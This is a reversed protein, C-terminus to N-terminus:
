FTILFRLCLKAVDVNCSIVPWCHCVDSPHESCDGSSAISFLGAWHPDPCVPVAGPWDWGKGRRFHHWTFGRQQLEFWSLLIGHDAPALVAAPPHQETCLPHGTRIGAWCWLHRVMAARPPKLRKTLMALLVPPFTADLYQSQAILFPLDLGFETMEGNRNWRGSLMM